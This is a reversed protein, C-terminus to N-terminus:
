WKRWFGDVLETIFKLKHKPDDTVDFKGGPVRVSARGLLLENPCLYTGLDICNGPKIGIPRENILNAVEYLATQLEGFTLVSDGILRTLGKKVLRILSESSGNYWPADAAKNFRWRMGEVTGFRLIEKKDWEKIMNKMAKSAAVLQTGNDSHISHPFGRINIFRRLSALFDATSYREALDLHVARTTLCTFIVGFAKGRTRLKVTDRIVFPGFLDLATHYFAPTPKLREEMVQGMCQEETRGEMRRRIICKYKVSKIIKRAKPVWFREQLKSLTSEIGGHDRNHLHIIYMRTFEHNDPLLVFTDQNWNTKLWNAIRLGVMIIGDKMIPGLRKFRIKWDTMHKQCEIEAEELDEATPELGIGRLSKMKKM